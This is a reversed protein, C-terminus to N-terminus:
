SVVELVEIVGGYNCGKMRKGTRSNADILVFLIETTLIQKVLHGLKKWFVDKLEANPNAEPAYAVVLNVATCEGTLEFHLSMLREDILQHTYVSKRCTSEKVALGVEYLGQRGETEEQVSCFVRYGAASFEAKGSRRTEQLGIFDCGLQRAKALVCEANLWSACM